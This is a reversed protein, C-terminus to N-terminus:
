SRIKVDAQIDKLEVANANNALSSISLTPSQIDLSPIWASPINVKTIVSQDKNDYNIEIAPKKGDETDNDITTDIGFGIKKSKKDAANADAYVGQAKVDQISLNINGKEPDYNWLHLGWVEVPTAAPFDLLPEAKGMKITLGNFTAKGVRLDALEYKYSAGVDKDLPNGSFNIAVSVSLM